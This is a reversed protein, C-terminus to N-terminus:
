RGAGTVNVVVTELVALTSPDSATVELKGSQRGFQVFFETPSFRVFVQCTDGPALLEGGSFVCLDQDIDVPGWGFDDPLGGSIAVLLNTGSTNTVTVTKFTTTGVAKTGFNLRQPSVSVLSAAAVASAPTALAAVLLLALVSLRRM